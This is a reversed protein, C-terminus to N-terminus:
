RTRGRATVDFIEEVVGGRVGILHDTLNVVPCVHMPRARIREGVEVASPESEDWVVVGHEETVSEIHGPRDAVKGLLGPKGFYSDKSFTKSGGDITVKSGRESVVTCLISLAIQDRSCVGIESMGEDYFVYTGACVETVGPVSAFGLATPTSGGVVDRIEIGTDRLDSAIGAMLRGEERGLEDADRGDAGPFFASRHTTIGGLVLGPLDLVAQALAAARDPAVGCRHFGTDIEMRVAITTGARAAADSLGQAAAANEVHVTLDSRRALQAARDWKARGFIPYAIVVDRIGADVFVEAESVKAASVGIAGASMQREAIAPTKHTKVHSRFAVGHRAVETHLHDINRELQDLDVLVAPTELTDVDQGLAPLWYQGTMPEENRPLRDPM